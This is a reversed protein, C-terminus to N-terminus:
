LPVALDSGLCRSPEAEARAFGPESIGAADVRGSRSYPVGLGFRSDLAVSGRVRYDVEGTGSANALVGDADSVAMVVTVPVRTSSLPALRIPAASSGSGLRTGAADLDVAVQRFVLADPNPNTVCLTVAGRRGMVDVDGPLVGAVDSMPAVPLSCDSVVLCLAVAVKGMKLM